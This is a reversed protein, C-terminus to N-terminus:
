GWFADIDAQTAARRKPEEKAPANKGGGSKKDDHIENYEMIYDIVQGLEM